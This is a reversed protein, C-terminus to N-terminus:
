KKKKKRFVRKADNIMADPITAITMFQTMQLRPYMFAIYYKPDLIKAKGEEILVPFPLMGANNRGIKKPFKRTRKRLKIGVLTSGNKLTQQFVISKNDKIRELLDDGSAIEIMDEYHPMGNMFQYKPLLQFKLADESNKLKPFHEILAALLKKAEKEDFETQLFGKTMYLPNTININKEKTDVLIRLNAMFGRNSKSAMSVLADNSFVVSILTGKKNVPASVLVAFGATKLTEEVEKVEMFEGRLYASVRGHNVEGIPANEDSIIKKVNNLRHPIYNPPVRKSFKISRNNFDNELQIVKEPTPVTPLTINIDGAPTHIVQVSTSLPKKETKKETEQIAQIPENESSAHSLTLLAFVSLSLFYTKLPIM